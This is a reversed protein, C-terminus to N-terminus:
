NASRLTMSGLLCRGPQVAATTRTSYPPHGSMGVVMAVRTMRMGGAVTVGVSM